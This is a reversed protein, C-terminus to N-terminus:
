ANNLRISIRDGCEKCFSSKRKTIYQRWTRKCKSCYFYYYGIRFVKNYCKWCDSKKVNKVNKVNKWRKNCKECWFSSYKKM